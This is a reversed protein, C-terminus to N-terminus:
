KCTGFLPCLSDSHHIGKKSGAFLCIDIGSFPHCIGKVLNPIM